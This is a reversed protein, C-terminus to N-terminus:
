LVWCKNESINWSRITYTKALNLLIVYFSSNGIKFATISVMYSISTMIVNFESEYSHTCQIPIEVDKVGIKKAYIFLASLFFANSVDPREM